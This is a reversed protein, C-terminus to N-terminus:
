VTNDLSYNGVESGNKWFTIGNDYISCIKSLADTPCEGTVKCGNTKTYTWHPRVDRNPVKVRNVTYGYMDFFEDITKIVELPQRVNQAWFRAKNSVMMANGAYTQGRLNDAAISAKYFQSAINLGKHVLSTAGGSVDGGTISGAADMVSGVADLIIPVSNQATWAKYTDYNWSCQPFNAITLQETTLGDTISAGVSSGKYGCPMLVMQVPPIITGVIQCTMLPTAFFEYRLNIQQGCGNDIMLYNYPYSLLKRNHITYGEITNRTTDYKNGLGVNGTIVEFHHSGAGYEVGAGTGLSCWHPTTYISVIADPKQIYAAIKNNIAGYGGMDENDVCFLRAGTYVNNVVGGDNTSSNVDVYMLVTDRKYLSDAGVQRRNDYVYEGLSVPEPLLYQYAGDTATHEREVFCRELTVDFMYTQMVDIEYYVDAFGNNVYEISSIFAYFWKTGFATNQFCMYNCNYIDDALCKARFVGSNVRQYSNEEFVRVPDSFYSAQASASAFYITDSYTNDLPVGSFLKITSNPQVFM